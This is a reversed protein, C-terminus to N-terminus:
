KEELWQEDFYDLKHVPMVVSSAVNALHAFVRKLFRAAIAAAVARPTEMESEAIERILQEVRVGFSRERALINGAIGEDCTRFAERTKGFIELAEDYLARVESAKEGSLPGNLIRRVEFINKSYDGVREVDKGLSMLMLCGPVDGGPHVTLHTIIKRRISREAQNVLIDREYLKEGLGEGLTEGFLSAECQRFMWETDATMRLFDDLIEAMLGGTRCADIIKRLM